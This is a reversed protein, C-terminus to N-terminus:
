NGDILNYVEGDSEGDTESTREGVISEEQQRGLDENVSVLYSRVTGIFPHQSNRGHVINLMELSQKLFEAAHNLNKLMYYIVGVCCLSLATDPHPNSHGHIARFVKLSQEHMELAKDLKGEQHYLIGLTNFTSGMEYQRETHGPIARRMEISEELKEVAKKLDGKREYVIGLNYLSSAIDLHPEGPGHIARSMKLNEELKELAEDLKGMRHYLLGVVTLSLAIHPHPTGHGYYSRRIKLSQEYKELAKDPEGMNDYVRGLSELSLAIDLAPENDGHIARRMELSQEFKELAKGLEGMKQYVMGLGYLSSAIDLHLKDEGHIKRRMDLSQELTEKAKNLEGMQRYVLGLNILSSAIDTHPKGHGHFAQYIGLSQKHKALAENLKGMQLYVIGLDNLSMAVDLHTAGRGHIEQYMELSQEHIEMAEDLQGIERHVNGLSHLSSAIDLHSKHGYIAYRMKLSEGHKELSKKLEGMTCYVSGINYLSSAIDPHKEDRGYIAQYMRLCQEHHELAEDLKGMEHYVVGLKRLSMAIHPHLRTNGYISRSIQLGQEHLELAKELNGMRMYVSGLNNVSTAIAPHPMSFKYIEQKMEIAEEHKKRAEDLKGMKLYLLGLNNLSMAIDPHSKTNGHIKRSMELSQEHKAQAKDLEGMQHYVIALNNFSLAIDVHPVDHGHIALRMQLCREHKELAEGLKGKERYVHGLNNLTSAIELNPKDNGHVEHYLELSHELKSAASDFKGARLFADGLRNNAEAIRSIVETGTPNELKQRHFIALLHEWVQSQEEWKEMFGIVGGSYQHIDEVQAVNRIDSGRPLLAYHHVLALSYASLELHNTDFVDPLEHFSNGKKNLETKVVEHVALLALSYVNSWAASDHTMENLIFQRVLRHMGYNWKGRGEAKDCWILSSGHILEKVIIKQNMGEVSDGGDAAAAKLLGNVMTEGVGGQGLMAIAQLIRNANGSLNRVNIKWTTWIARQSERIPKLDDTKHMIEKWDGRTKSEFLNLYEAFSCEFQAIFSGAQVLALPLGGLGDGNEDGCLKKLACYEVQDRGELKKIDAAVKNDDADTTDIKEIQRWLAVMADEVCLPKLALKQESKMATWIHPQGQRSTVVVWGNERSPGAIGCVDNLIGSVSSDDANDLCLLWRGQRQGLGQELAHIVLNPNRREEESMKRRTLKEALGALSDIVDRKGGDVTVWFVGGPVLGDREARDAFAVMLETKGLGGYQTIVASGRKNLIDKLTELEKKRGSFFVSVRPQKHHLGDNRVVRDELLNVKEDLVHIKSVTGATVVRHILEELKREVEKVDEANMIQSSQRRLLQIKARDMICVTEKFTNFVFDMDTENTNRSPKYIEALSELVYRLLITIQGLVVRLVRQGRNAEAWMAVGQASLAVLQFITSVGAVCKSVDAIFEATEAVSEVTAVLKALTAGTEVAATGHAILEDMTALKQMQEPLSSLIDSWKEEVKDPVGGLASKIAEVGFVDKMEKQLLNWPVVLAQMQKVLIEQQQPTAPIIEIEVDRVLFLTKRRPRGHLRGHVTICPKGEFDTMKVKEDVDKRNGVKLRVLELSDANRFDFISQPRNSLDNNAIKWFIRGSVHVYAPKFHSRLFQRPFVIRLDATQSILSLSTPLATSSM